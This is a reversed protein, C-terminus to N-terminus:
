DDYDPPPMQKSVAGQTDRIYIRLEERDGRTVRMASDLFTVEFKGARLFRPPKLADPLSPVDFRPLDRFIDSGILEASTDEFVIQVTARGQVEYDHRLTLRAAPSDRMASQASLGMLMRPLATPLPLLLEVVNDLKGAAEDIVQYVQGLTTPVLAAPPGPRRGGLSGGNFGSTYVLRWTGPLQAASETNALDVGGGMEELMVALRDVEDAERANAALGRDLSSLMVLLQSKLKEVRRQLDTSGLSM